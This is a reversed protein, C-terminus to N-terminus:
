LWNHAKMWQLLAAPWANETGGEGMGYGHGGKEYIHMEAPVKNKQLAEFYRLSNAVPVAEDDSSHVLFAPPTDQKVQLENSFHEVMKAEPNNGLLNIRSGMHTFSENFSIVPYILVSFNPRASINDKSEYVKENYHTSLTSALHGGASFGMVGIKEPNINWEAANRRIVRMAEQADQLPGITKNKMIEDSPLRYKLVIGAVGRDAFWKALDYGEHHLCVVQYGGGPFILVASGNAKEKPPLFVEMEPDSIKSICREQEDPKPWYSKEKTAGPVKDPWLKVTKSQAQLDTSFMFLFIGLFLTITKM